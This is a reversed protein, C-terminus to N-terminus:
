PTPFFDDDFIQDNSWPCAKPGIPKQDRAIALGALKRAHQYAKAKFEEFNHRLSGSSELLDAVRNRHEALDIKWRREQRKRENPRSENGLKLMHVFVVELDSVLADRTRQGTEELEEALGDWDLHSGQKLRLAQGQQAIWEIYDESADGNTSVRPAAPADKELLTLTRKVESV